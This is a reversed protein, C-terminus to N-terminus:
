FFDKITQSLIIDMENTPFKVDIFHPKKFEKKLSKLSEVKIKEKGYDNWNFENIIDFLNGRYNEIESDIHHISEPNNTYKVLIKHATIGGIIKGITKITSNKGM